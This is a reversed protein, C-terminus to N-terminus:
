AEFVAGPLPGEMHVIEFRLRAGAALLAEAVARDREVVLQLEDAGSPLHPALAEIAARAAAADFSRFPFCGPYAPDFPALGVPEGNREVAIVRCSPKRRHQGLVGSALEFRRALREDDDAGAERARITPGPAPLRQAVSADVRVVWTDYEATMGLSRYLAIAPANDRKVNLEWRECGREALRAAAALMMARGLGRGRSGPAVVVHRLYGTRSLPQGWAYAVIRDEDELFQIDPAMHAAWHAVEPVVDGTALEPVLRAFDSYHERRADLIRM